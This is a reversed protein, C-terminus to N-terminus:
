LARQQADATAQLIMASAELIDGETHDLIIGLNHDNVDTGRAPHHLARSGLVSACAEARRQKEDLNAQMTEQVGQAYEIMHHAAAVRGIFAPMAIHPLKWSRESTQQTAEYTSEFAIAAM